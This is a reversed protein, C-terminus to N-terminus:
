VLKYNHRKAYQRKMKSITYLISRAFKELETFDRTSESLKYGNVSSLILHGERRLQEIRKRLTRESIELKASLSKASIPTKRKKLVEIIKSM